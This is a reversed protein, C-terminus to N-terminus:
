GTTSAVRAVTIIEPSAATMLSRDWDGYREDIVFGAEGLLRDIHEAPAFRLRSRSNRIEPWADSAFNETFTVLQDDVSEVEHWVRVLTGADDFV